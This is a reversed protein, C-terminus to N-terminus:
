NPVLLLDLKNLLENVNFPKSLYDNAGLALLRERSHDMADASLLLVPLHGTSADARLEALVADGNIDPLQLDLLICNPRRERAQALGSSGNAASLFTWRPRLRELVMKVVQVNSPNDEIYLLTADSPSGAEALAAETSRAPRKGIAAARKQAAPLEIWFSSGVGPESEVGLRGNMAEILQKTVVLGLGTGEAEGYERGLREFPVFLRVIQEPTIGLGTDKVTLRVSGGLMRECSVRVSGGLRNYKIANSLLNLLIQRLRQEDALVPTRSFRRSEIKCTVDRAKAVREVFGICQRVLTHLSLSTPQLELEGSEVRALDLVEDVLSLLHKGGSLIHTVSQLDDKALAGTELLQGFGLIANLPTRLEHSMRSLFVSKARNAREAEDKAQRLVTELAHRETVDNATSIILWRGDPLRGLIASSFDWIREEGGACRIRMGPHPVAGVHEILSAVLARVHDKAEETPFVLQLWDEVTTLEEASYGTIHVWADNVQLVEGDEAYLITPCPSHFNALRFREESERLAAKNNEEETVDMFIGDCMVGGDPLKEPLSDIQVWCVEGGPLLHRGRWHLPTLTRKAEDLADTLAQRDAPHIREFLHAPRAHIEHPELGHFKRCNESIFPVTTTGDPHLLYQYVMGPTHVAIRNYRVEIGRLNEETRRRIIAAALINAVLQLFYVDDETFTRSSPSGIGLTGYHLDGPRSGGILVGLASILGLREFLPTLHFRKETRADAVIVPEGTALIYGAYTSIDDGSIVNGVDAKGTEQSARVVFCKRAAVHEHVRCVEVNLTARVVHVAEQLLEDISGGGLAHRGLRAVAEHNRARVRLREEARKRGSIDRVLALLRRGADAELVSVRVETWFVQGDRKRSLGEMTVTEGPVMAQWRKRALGPDFGLEVDALTRSLLEKREYGFLNLMADNVDVFRGELDYVALADPGNEVIRTANGTGDNMGVEPSWPDPQDTVAAHEPACAAKGAAAADFRRREQREGRLQRAVRRLLMEAAALAALDQLAQQEVQDFTRPQRDILALTGLLQGEPTRLPAGAYFRIHPEGTVLPNRAFRADRTADSVVMVGEGTIAHACFSHERPTERTELGRVSKFWQRHADVLTVTAIPVGFLRTALSTIHEFSAEPPTDLIEYGQLAALREAEFNLSFCTM